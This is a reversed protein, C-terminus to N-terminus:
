ILDRDEDDNEVNYPGNKVEMMITNDEQVTFGCGGQYSIYFDGPNLMRASILRREKPTYTRVECSGQFVIMIEQTREALRPRSIHIHNKLEHGKDYRFGGVQIFDLHSGFFELGYKIERFNCIVALVEDDYKIEEM